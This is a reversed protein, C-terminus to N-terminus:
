PLNRTTSTAHTFSLLLFCFSVLQRQHFVPCITTCKEKQPTSGSPISKKREFIYGKLINPKFEFSRYLYSTTPSCTPFFSITTTPFIHGDVLSVKLAHRAERRRVVDDVIKTLYRYYKDIRVRCDAKWVGFRPTSASSVRMVHVRAAGHGMGCVFKSTPIYKWSNRTEILSAFLKLSVWDQETQFRIPSDRWCSISNLHCALYAHHFVLLSRHNSGLDWELQLGWVNLCASPHDLWPIFLIETCSVWIFDVM